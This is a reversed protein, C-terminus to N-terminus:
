LEDGGSKVGGLNTGAVPLTYKTDPPVALSGDARLYKTTGGGSSPVLGDKTNTFVNYTTDQAPIGLAVIDAKTIAGTKGNITTITDTFLANEPVDTM